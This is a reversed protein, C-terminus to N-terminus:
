RNERIPIILEVNAEKGVLGVVDHTLYDVVPMGVLNTMPFLERNSEGNLMPETWEIGM